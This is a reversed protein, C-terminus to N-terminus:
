GYKCNSLLPGYSICIPGYWYEETWSNEPWGSANDMYEYGWDSAGAPPAIMNSTTLEM